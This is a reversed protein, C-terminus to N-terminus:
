AAIRRRRPLAPRRRAWALFATLRPVGRVLNPNDYPDVAALPAWRGVMQEIEWAEVVPDRTSSEFHYLLLDPDYVIRYGAARLKLCYDIDNFNVPLTGTLGGAQEFVERRSMLCAGTVAMCDRAILVSNAYGRFDGAFGRYTHHPLGGEFHVGVHQLRDDGWVLRGGVAGIEPRLSYMVMREIWDPTTIEIDDNLLLLHEGRARVAGLNIKASFDFPGAFPVLRVRDGGLDRLERLVIPPTSTDYVIVLEYNEYSSRELISRVCHVVLIKPEFRIERAQGNTPIVISVLPQRRLRPRLHLIGPDAPDLEVEAEFGTRDCHAQVARCGAEFAWPKAAAESAASSALMRWHYLVRPVHAVARARETVRLVLDWDQSGEFAPDFGGVEEVLARRLVSLHCTYMQTRLREPSFDPKFFPHSHRGADDIKDEDTYVYDCGPTRDIAEAVLALADPHLMDDHDLLAVFEGGAIALADNSAAVIGGNEERQVVRIRPDAAQAAALMERVHPERSADDVLCLEWDGCSQARVSGLMKALVGAPTEYVPTLISFRPAAV